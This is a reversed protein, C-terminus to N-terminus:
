PAFGIPWIFRTRVAVGEKKPPSFRTNKVINSIKSIMEPYPNQVIDVLSVRGTEDIFIDLKVVFRDVGELHLKRSLKKSVKTKVKTLLIPAKDLQELSFTDFNVSMPQWKPTNIKISPTDPSVLDLSSDINIEVAQIAVGAGQVVLSPLPKASETQSVSPPPPPPLAVLAVERVIIKDEVIHEALQGLWLLVIAFTLVLLSLGFAFLPQKTKSPKNITNTLLSHM